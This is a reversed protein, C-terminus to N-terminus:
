KLQLGQKKCYNKAGKETKWYKVPRSSVLEGNGIDQMLTYTKTGFGTNMSKIKYKGM